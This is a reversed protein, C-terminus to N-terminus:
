GFLLFSLTKSILAFSNYSIGNPIPYASEFLKLRRDSCGLYIVDENLRRIDYM